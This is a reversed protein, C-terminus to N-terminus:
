EHHSRIGKVLKDKRTLVQPKSCATLVKKTWLAIFIKAKKRITLTGSPAAVSRCKPRLILARSLDPSAGDPPNWYWKRVDVLQKGKFESFGLRIETNNGEGIRITDGLEM